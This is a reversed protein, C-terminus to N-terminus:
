RGSGLYVSSGVVTVDYKKIPDSLHGDLLSQGDELFFEWKHWPCRVVPGREDIGYDGITSGTSMTAGVQGNCIRAGMHPCRNRVAHVADGDRILGIERENIEMVKFSTESLDDLECLYTMGATAEEQVLGGRGEKPETM